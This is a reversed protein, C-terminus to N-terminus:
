DICSHKSNTDLPYLLPVWHLFGFLLVNFFHFRNSGRRLAKLKQKVAIFEILHAALLVGSISLLTTHYEQMTGMVLSELVFLYFISVCLKLATFINQLM